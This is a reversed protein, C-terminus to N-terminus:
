AQVPDKPALLRNILQDELEIRSTLAGILRSLDEHLRSLDTAKKEPDYQENFSLAIETTEDIRHLFQMALDAVEKRREQKKVIREYLGFHGAATYDVLVQCFENLLDYDTESPTEARIESTQLLLALLQNREVLMHDVLDTTQSRREHKPKRQDAM